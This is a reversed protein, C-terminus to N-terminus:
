NKLFLGMNDKFNGCLIQIIDILWGIGFLGFTFLYLLGSGVKGVYFRHVGLGGLFFCLIFALWKSKPSIMAMASTGAVNANNNVNNIIINPMAAPIGQSSMEPAQTPQQGNAPAGCNPCFNATHETGCKQCKM